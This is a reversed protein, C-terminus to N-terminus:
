SSRKKSKALLSNLKGLKEQSRISNPNHRLASKIAKIAASIKKMKELSLARNYEVIDKPVKELKLAKEYEALAKEYERLRHFVTGRNVYIKGLDPKLEAAENHDNMARQFNGHAAFIIGRNTYTAALDRRSLNDERIARSCIRTSALSIPNNSEHFCQNADSSGFSTKTEGMAWNSFLTTLIAFIYKILM